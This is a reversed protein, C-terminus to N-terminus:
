PRAKGIPDSGRAQVNTKPRSRRQAINSVLQGHRRRSNARGHTEHPGWGRTPFSGSPARRASRNQDIRAIKYPAAQRLRSGRRGEQHAGSSQRASQPKARRHRGGIMGDHAVDAQKKTDNPTAPKNTMGFVGHPTPKNSILRRAKRVYRHVSTLKAAAFRLVPKATPRLPMEAGTRRWQVGFQFREVMADRRGLQGRAPASMRSRCSGAGRRPRLHRNARLGDDSAPSKTVASSPSRHRFAPFSLATAMGTLM